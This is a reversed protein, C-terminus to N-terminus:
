DTELTTGRADINTRTNAFTVTMMLLGRADEEVINWKIRHLTLGITQWEVFM